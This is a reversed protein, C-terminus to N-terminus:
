KVFKGSRIVKGYQMRVIYAGNALDAVSYKDPNTLYKVLGGDVSYIWAKDVNVFNIVNDAVYFSSVESNVNNIGEPTQDLGEPEEPTGQDHNDAPAPRPENDGSIEVGFDISFGKAHLGTPLFSGEFWADSFVIRLRSKGPRADVPVTFKHTIGTTQFEPTQDRLKGLRFLREGQAPNEDIPDPNFTGSGDLDMWGGAFCYKLGDSFDACKITLTVEQGQEVKLVKDTANVYQTGDTQPGNAHYEINQTAGVTTFDTVYRQQRAIDAGECNPDMQSIGYSDDNRVPLADQDARAVEVWEIPSYTKLDTSVARVGIFPQDDADEFIIDGVYVAWQTTRAIESIRGEEGNKYLIEFHDVNAEDNFLLDWAARDEAARDLKWNAKISLSTKTEEKVEVVVDQVNAPVAKVNDNIELKGVYLKYNDDSGKVRLGIREIVDGQNIGSLSIKKEQWTKGTTEGVPFELWTGDQKKLIVYLNTANNGDKGSKVAINAYAGSASSTLATQFLVIDTGTSTAEGTLKLCSGGTYSDDHSFEPQIKDSATLTGPETVLWRYTPVRDQNAMNYWAGATKKGKYNYRDGNGLNFYTAFPLNGQIASREPIWTALGAFTSLPLKDGQKEWNNGTDSIEPRNLPNRNGGSFARELLSQYNSQAEYADAGSNYSWFRSTNHEGWLCIGCRKDADTANLRSWGRDMSVIWVGAYLGESTGMAREAALVSAGMNYSFDSAAYNLMTHATRGTEDGFLANTNATISSMATYLGLHFNDFGCAAAEKYLAKNFAITTADAYGMDEWNYNIGDAGFYMLCNIMPKVYKFSGDSNKASIITNWEGSTIGWSEFFKIGSMINTGNKHAADVWAGPATFFSHNWSGFLNTYNWMSFVDDAFNTTPQGVAGDKGTSMPINMWLDRKEYTDPLLRNARDIIQAKRVHSRIFAIDSPLIGKTAFEEETPYNRGDQLANYFLEMLDVDVFGSFDYVESTTTESMQSMATGPTGMVACCVMAGIILHRKKM